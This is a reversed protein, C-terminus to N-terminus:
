IINWNEKGCHEEDAGNGCDYIGNCVYMYPVCYSNPCKFYYRPCTFNGCNLLHSFSRCGIITGKDDRRYLCKISADVTDVHSQCFIRATPYIGAKKCVAQGIQFRNRKNKVSDTTQMIFSGDKVMQM